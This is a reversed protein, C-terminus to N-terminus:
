VVQEVRNVEPVYHRLMNEIGQKLTITSSPCGACSGRMNLRVVGQEHDWSHFTIDGGDRAVAPRVRADIIEKLEKVIDAAEGEYVIDAEDTEDVPASADGLVPRGSTFHDMIAALVHPKLHPWEISESKTITLFDSGLYVREVGDIAFLEMALPSSEAAEAGAYERSGQGLVDRGPLFKLTRPNPTSETQIFM